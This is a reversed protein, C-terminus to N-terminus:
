ISILIYAVISLVIAVVVTWKIIKNRKKREREKEACQPCVRLHKLNYHSTIERMVSGGTLGKSVVRSTTGTLEKEVIETSSGYNTICGCRACRFKIDSIGDTLAKMIDMITRLNRSLDIEDGFPDDGAKYQSNAQFNVEDIIDQISAVNNERLWRVWNSAQIPSVFKIIRDENYDLPEPYHVSDVIYSTYRYDFTNM